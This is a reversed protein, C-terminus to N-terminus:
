VIQGNHKPGKTTNSGYKKELKIAKWDKSKSRAQHFNNWFRTTHVLNARWVPTDSLGREVDFTATIVLFLFKNVNEYAVM